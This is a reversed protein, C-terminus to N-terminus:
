RSSRGDARVPAVRAPVAPRAASASAPPKSAPKGAAPKGAPAPRTICVVHGLFVALRPGPVVQFLISEGEYKGSITTGNRCTVIVQGLVAGDPTRLESIEEPRITVTGYRTRIKLEAQAIHGVLRDDNRLEMVDLTESPIDKGPFVIESVLARRIDLVPGLDLHLKLREALLLGSLVSGNRFVARHLGGDPTDFRLARLNNPDLSVTGYQSQYTGDLDGGRFALQQGSRLRVLPRAFRIEGPRAPSLAFTAASLRVPPLSMESGNVLRINVPADALRGAVIQGDTLIVQVLADDASPVYLGVVREAPLDLRGYFAEVVFHRNTIKGLLENGNRLVALDHRDSRPLDISGIMLGMSGMNVIIRRLAAPVKALERSPKFSEMFKVAQAFPRRQAHFICLAVAKGPPVKLSFDYYISDDNTNYRITPLHKSGKQGFVQVIAPRSSSSSDGVVIGWDKNTPTTKGLTTRTM